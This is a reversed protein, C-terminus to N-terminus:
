GNTLGDIAALAIAVVEHGALHRARRRIREAASSGLREDVAARAREVRRREAPYLEVDVAAADLTAAAEDRGMRALLVALNRLTTDQLSAHGGRQWHLLAERYEALAVAPDGHRARITSRATRAAGVVLHSDVTAGLDIARGAEALALTPQHDAEVEARLYHVWARATPNGTTTALDGAARAAERAIDVAGTYAHVLGVGIWGDVEVLADGATAGVAVQERYCAEARDAEGRFLHADGLVQWARGAPATGPADAELIAHAHISARDLDGRCLAHLAATARAGQRQAAGVPPHPIATLLDVAVAGAALLEIRQGPTAYARIADALEAARAPDDLARVHAVAGQLDAVLRNLRGVAAAENPGRLVPSEARLTTVITDVHARRLDPLEGRAAAQESAVARITDLLRHRDPPVHLVLSAEVLAAVAAAVERHPVGVRVLFSEAMTLTLDGAWTSLARLVHHDRDDLLDTSWAILGRLDRHAPHSSRQGVLVDLHHDLRDHLAALGLNPVQRAALELSLPLGDLRRVIRDALGLQDPDTTDVAAGARQLFLDLAASRADSRTPPDVPLPMLRVVQEGDLHLPERSSALIALDPRVALLGDVLAAVAAAVQECNDFLLLAPAPGLADALGGSSAVDPPSGRNLALATRGLVDDERHADTLEVWVCTRGAALRRAAELCVRTKGVGGPGVVTVLAGDAIGAALEAVIDDRGVLSTRLVPPRRPEGATPPGADDATPPDEPRDPAATAVPDLRGRVLDVHLARLAASPDLGLQDALDSRHRQYRADAAATRGSTALARMALAVSRERLPDDALVEELDALAGHADGIALRRRGRDELADLRLGRVHGLEATFPEDDFGALDPGRWTALVEDLHARATATDTAARVAALRDTVRAVDVDDRDLALRYGPERHVVLDPDGLVARLRAVHSQLSNTASPPAADGWLTDVLSATSVVAGARLALAVLVVRQSRSTVTVPRGDVEISLPGLLGVAVRGDVSGGM